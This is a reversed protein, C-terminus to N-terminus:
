ENIRGNFVSLAVGDGVPIISSTFDRDHTLMHLYQRLRQHITRYRRDIAFRSEVISGDQLINDSFLVARDRLLLKLSPLWNVYQAKAADVFIFDYKKGESILDQLVSTVDGEILNIRNSYNSNAINFKAKEIRKPYNEITTIKADCSEAMVLASYAVATGLELIDNVKNMSLLTKMFSEGARRIIPVGDELARKRINETYESNEDTLLEIYESIRDNVIM